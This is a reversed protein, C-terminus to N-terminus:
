MKTKSKLSSYAGKVFLTNEATSGNSKKEGRSM